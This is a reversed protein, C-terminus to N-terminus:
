QRVFFAREYEADVYNEWCQQSGIKALIDISYKRMIGTSPMYIKEERVIRHLERWIKKHSIEPVKGVQAYSETMEKFHQLTRDILTVSAQAKKEVVIARWRTASEKMSLIHIEELGASGMVPSDNSEHYLYSGAGDYKGDWPKTSYSTGVVNFRKKIVLDYSQKQVSKNEMHIFHVHPNVGRGGVHFVAHFVVTSNWKAVEECKQRLFSEEGDVRVFWKDSVVKSAPVKKDRPDPEGEM